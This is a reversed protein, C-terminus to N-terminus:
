AAQVSPPCRGTAAARYKKSFSSLVIDNRRRFFSNKETGDELPSPALAALVPGPAASRLTTSPELRGAGAPFGRRGPPGPETPAEGQEPLGPCGGRAKVRGLGRSWIEESQSPKCLASAPDEGRWTRTGVATGAPSPPFARCHGWGPCCGATRGYKCKTPLHSLSPTPFPSPLWVQGSPHPASTPSGAGKLNGHWLDSPSGGGLPQLLLPTPLVCSGM